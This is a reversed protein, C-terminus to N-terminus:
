IVRRGLQQAAVDVLSVTVIIMIMTASPAAYDFGRFAAFFIQGVGDDGVLGVVTASRVDAEFRYLAHSISLPMKQPIIGGIVERM